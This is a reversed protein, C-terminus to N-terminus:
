ANQEKSEEKKVTTEIARCCLGASLM